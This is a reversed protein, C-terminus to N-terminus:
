LSATKAFTTITLIKTAFECRALDPLLKRQHGLRPRSNPRRDAV